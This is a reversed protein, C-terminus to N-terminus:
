RSLVPATPRGALTSEVLAGCEDKRNEEILTMASRHFVRLSSKGIKTAELRGEDIWRYVTWRSVNLLAAAESVRLLFQSM